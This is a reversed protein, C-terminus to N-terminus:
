KPMPRLNELMVLCYVDGGGGGLKQRVEDSIPGRLETILVVLGEKPDDPLPRVSEWTASGRRFVFPYTTIRVGDREEQDPADGLDFSPIHKKYFASLDAIPMAVYYVRTRLDIHDKLLGSDLMNVGAEASKDRDLVAKEPMPFSEMDSLLLNGPDKGNRMGALIKMAEASKGQQMLLDALGKKYRDEGPALEVARRAFRVAEDGSAPSPGAFMRATSLIIAKRYNAEANNPQLSLARDLRKQVNALFVAPEPKKSASPTTWLMMGASVVLADVDDPHARLYEEVAAASSAMEEAGPLESGPLESGKQMEEIGTEFKKLLQQAHVIADRKDDPKPAAATLAVALVILAAKCSWM